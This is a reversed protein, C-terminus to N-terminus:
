DHFLDDMSITEYIGGSYTNTKLGFTTVLITHIADRTKTFHVFADIRDRLRKEYDGTLTYEAQCYKMECIDIIHDGRCLLLDIQTGPWETGDKDVQKPSSWSCVNTLVGKISLKSRIQDIHHLCVQEFAYGAWANRVSDKINSWYHEDLGTKGAIFKLYYLSFLDTLQYISGREKKGFSAYKRVFDCKSLNNLATTLAGGNYDTIHEKIEKLTLGKNRSALVEVIRRYIVASKFLSRFLFNYETRLPADKGYFLEDINQNFPLDKDLMDLYYPIGGFIMYAELIQYRNWVIGKRQRLFQEVEHLNFPALYISRSIRGYLGGKDGIIKDIMWSTSSGCVVLTLGDRTSAWSNWFYSFANIFMSKATDMWPLEDLFIVIREKSISSLYDRLQGFADFWNKPMPFQRNSYQYLADHFLALQIKMPTEFSGTFFFDFREHFFHKVLYTKGVRRRGYVAVLRAEKEKCINSLLHLEKERGIIENTAMVAKQKIQQHLPLGFLAFICNNKTGLTLIKCM